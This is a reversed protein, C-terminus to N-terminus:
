PRCEEEVIITDGKRYTACKDVFYVRSTNTEETVYECKGNGRSFIDLIEKKTKITQVNPVSTCSIILLILVYKM